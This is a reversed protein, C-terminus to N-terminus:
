LLPQFPHAQYIYAASFWPYYLNCNQCNIQNGKEEKTEILIFRLPPQPPNRFLAKQEHGDGEPRTTDQDPHLNKMM